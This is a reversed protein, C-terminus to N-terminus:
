SQLHDHVVGCNSVQFGQVYFASTKRELLGARGLEARLNCKGGDVVAKDSALTALVTPSGIALLMAGM